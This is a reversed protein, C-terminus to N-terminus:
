TFVVKKRKGLLPEAIVVLEDSLALFTTDALFYIIWRWSAYVCRKLWYEIADNLRDDDNKWCREIDDCKSPSIVLINKALWRWTKGTRQLVQFVNETNLRLGTPLQYIYPQYLCM